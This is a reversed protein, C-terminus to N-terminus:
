SPNSGFGCFSSKTLQQYIKEWETLTGHTDIDKVQTDEKFHFDGSEVTYQLHNEKNTVSKDHCGDRQLSKFAFHAAVISLVVLWSDTTLLASDLNQLWQILSVHGYYEWVLNILTKKPHAQCNGGSGM